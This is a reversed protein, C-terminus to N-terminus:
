LVLSRLLSSHQVICKLSTCYPRDGFGQGLAPNARVSLRNMGKHLSM